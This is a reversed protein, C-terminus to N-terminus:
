RSHPSLLLSSAQVASSGNAGFILAAVHVLVAYQVDTVFWRYTTIKEDLDAHTESAM